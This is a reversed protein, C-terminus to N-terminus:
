SIEESAGLVVLNLVAGSKASEGLGQCSYGMPHIDFGQAELNIKSLIECFLM